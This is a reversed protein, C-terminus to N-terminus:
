FDRDSIDKMWQADFTRKPMSAGLYAAICSSTHQPFAAFRSGVPAPAAFDATLYCWFDPAPYVHKNDM